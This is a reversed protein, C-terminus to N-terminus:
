LYFLEDIGINYNYQRIYRATRKPHVVHRILEEEFQKTLTFKKLIQQQHIHHQNKFNNGCVWSWDWPKDPNNNIMEITIKPNCSIYSWDWPKDPNNNIMEMTIKPNYSIESWDWPKDPNNNIMEMTLKPNSSISSWDWLKDPNNNIMEMTINPNCSIKSWNWPKDPNNILLKWFEGSVYYKTLQNAIKQKSEISYM